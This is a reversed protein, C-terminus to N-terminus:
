HIQHIDVFIPLHDSFGNNYKYGIYTRFPKTGTYREDNELLFDAKFIHADTLLIRLHENGYLLGGSIIIQDLIEWHGHYKYSGEGAKMLRYSLNYLANNTNALYQHGAQLGQTISIDDPHDNFDGMILINATSDKQLISDAKSRLFKAVFLRKPETNKQGGWRSPWHNVFFHLTDKNKLLGKIYLLDRTKSHIAFPFQITYWNTDLPTFQNPQYLVGVDIGRRDPSEKHIIRYHLKKLPSYSVLSLLTHKNEIECLGIIAPPKWKGVAIITKAIRNVKAWYHQKTWHKKGNPLFEYDNKLSDHQTDFFNECNYFMIRAITKEYKVTSNNKQTTLPLLNQIRNCSFYILAIFILSFSSLKKIFLM